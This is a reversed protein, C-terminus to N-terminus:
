LITPHFLLFQCAALGATELCAWVAAWGWLPSGRPLVGAEPERAGQGLDSRCAQIHCPEGGARYQPLLQETFRRVNALSFM